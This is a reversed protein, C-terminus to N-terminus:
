RLLAPPVAALKNSPCAYGTAASGVSGSLARQSLFLPLKRM